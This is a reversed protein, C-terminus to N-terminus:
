NLANRYSQYLERVELMLTTLTQQEKEYDQIVLTAAKALASDMQLAKACANAERLYEESNLLVMKASSLDVGITSVAIRILPIQEACATNPCGGLELARKARTLAGIHAHLMSRTAQTRLILSAAPKLLLVADEDDPDIRRVVENLHHLPQVAPLVFTTPVPAAKQHHMM